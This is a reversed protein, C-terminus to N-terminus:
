ESRFSFTGAGVGFYDGIKGLHDRTLRRSGSLIASVTSEAIGTAKSVEAQSVGKAEILHKLMESDPVNSVIRENESEYKEVLDSLVDLYAKESPDLSEFRDVLSDIVEIARELHAGNEIHCLPFSEVLEFYSDRMDGSRILSDM